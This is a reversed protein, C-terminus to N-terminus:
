VEQVKEVIVGEEIGEDEGEKGLIERELWGNVFVRGPDVSERVKVWREMEPYMGWIEERSVSVHNKAWHPKGGYEKMVYEFAEFWRRWGPLDNLFPRYLTANLYLTPESKCSQDLFPNQSKRLTNSVRVEIPAHVHV